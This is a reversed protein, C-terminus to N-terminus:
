EKKLPAMAYIKDKCGNKDAWKILDQSLLLKSLMRFDSCDLVTYAKNENVMLVEVKKLCDGARQEYFEQVKEKYLDFSCNFESEILLNM